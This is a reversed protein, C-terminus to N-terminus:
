IWTQIITLPVVIMLTLLKSYHFGTHPCYAKPGFWSLKMGQRCSCTHIISCGSLISLSRLFLLPLQWSCAVSISITSLPSLRLTEFVTNESHINSLKAL